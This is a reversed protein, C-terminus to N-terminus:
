LVIETKPINRHCFPQDTDVSGSPRSLRAVARDIGAQSLRDGSFQNCSSREFYARPTSYRPRDAANPFPRNTKLQRFLFPGLAPTVDSATENPDSTGAAVM